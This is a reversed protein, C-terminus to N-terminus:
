LQEKTAYKKIKEIICEPRQCGIINDIQSPEQLVQTLDVLAQLHTTHDTAALVIILSVPKDAGFLVPSQLNLLSMSLENVGDSPRAHPIAVKPTLVVYPGHQEISQIMAQIYRKEIKNQRLLPSSAVHIADQWNAVKNVIQITDINLLETLM